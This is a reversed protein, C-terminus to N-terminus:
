YSWSRIIFGRGEFVFLMFSWRFTETKPGRCTKPEYLTSPYRRSFIQPSSTALPCCKRSTVKTQTPESLAPKSKRFDRHTTLITSLPMSSYPPPHVIVQHHVHSPTHITTTKGYGNRRGCNSVSMQATSHILKRCSFRKNKLSIHSQPTSTSHHPKHLWTKGWKAIYAADWHVEEQVGV